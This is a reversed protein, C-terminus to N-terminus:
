AVVNVIRNPVVIVKKPAKGALARIVGDRALAANRVTEEDADAAVTVEDRRKGNVQIAITISEAHTLEADFKPWPTAVVMAKHGLVEWCTEALHPMMPGVLLVLAELAERRVAGSTADAAQITNALSYLQAVARNFRLHELDDTVAAIARHTARRMELDPGNVKGIATGHPPLDSAETVLRHVRQIFRWCGEAGSESWDVDREPPSDSLMFWRITDAGYVDVIVEPAVVNKKSKSMKISPGITVAQNTGRRIATGDSRKDVEEPLLWNGDQDKYTEHCLMGQTFMGAFPEDINTYGLKKMARVFFRSYLLHLIAHEIGGIYQDVPLWYNTADRNIPEKAHTDCFRAFYWSSDVFTDLTDTDRMAEGGCSPCTTHKWLPDHDLPNGHVAFDITDPLTVPLDKEAVPVVGCKACHVMPIPCGWPRQRSVLWDRLRYNITRKGVGRAELRSSVENKAQDVDLGDLFRSNALRGSGVYAESEIAFSRPDAGEPIVVPLVPLRYKRAFELDRQDHAPCGFIAGTGYGMLVFNAVVVPLKWEADFPHTATLGTDYGMKEATEIDAEATGIRRCQVVFEQLTADKKALDETLPHDPSLAVFSAGFLTDPRTSFVDLTEGNSLDFAFRLGESRGIWNRQMVRVKEPWRDLTELGALLDDAFATIGFFWQSLKRREVPANSRWGRGDIVQENALVTMDVPDWNVDAESRHVFGAKYFDLFLKQQHKYYDPDCTAFERSWDLSLGMLELQAKMLVINDYTWKRPDVNMARAANEAPLGFADWGMPHLVNYGQARRFRAIVDGMTYNRVHGIHIRGSPYPFMELVYCKPKSSDTPTVFAGAAKWAQQWKQEAEKANYRAM